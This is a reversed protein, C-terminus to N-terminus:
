LRTDEHLDLLRCIVEAAAVHQCGTERLWWGWARDPSQWLDLHEVEPEAYFPEQGMGLPQSSWHTFEDHSLRYIPFSGLLPVGWGDLAVFACVSGGKSQWAWAAAIAGVVGASFSIIFIPENISVKQEFFRFVHHPSIGWLSAGPIVLPVPVPEDAYLEEYRQQVVRWFADTLQPDHIGPCLVVAM